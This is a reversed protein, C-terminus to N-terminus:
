IKTVIFDVLSCGVFNPVDFNGVTIQRFTVAIKKLVPFNVEFLQLTGDIPAIFYIKKGDNSWKYSSVTGDWNATLNIKMGKFSVILDNKDAEYGDRKMQLWTLDGSPSFQPAMDYGFNGETRNITKGTELNYEYINTDTSLAYETGAKKKCVYVISKGDPSWNYDEDGGFPKQPSDFNEGKLIDIGESGEKNEKYFVHNFKGENWTDWHRYDLGNYIQVNSKDLNPYYDKGLVNDIKVEQNYVIYKGDPSINKDVLIDKTNKIEAVTEGNISVTYYKSNSKNEEVSPTSVKYVVNKGDKSIGLPTIRGLKWLLEPTMVNQASATLSMMTLMLFLTKRM